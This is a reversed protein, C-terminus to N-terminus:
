SRAFVERVFNRFEPSASPNTAMVELAPLMTRLQEMTQDDINAPQPLSLVNSGPGLGADAGATVPENPFQSPASLPTLGSMDVPAPANAATLDTGNAMPAAAQQAQFAQQEGYAADPLQQRPQGDTRRSAAGPGSFYAPKAPPQYGGRRDPQSM